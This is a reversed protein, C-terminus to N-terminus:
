LHENWGREQLEKVVKRISEEDHKNAVLTADPTHVVICDALGLTVVLHDDSTRVITGTTDLGIHKGVITNGQDDTGLRRALSQWGGLDDWEFPAEIVVVDKAHEM